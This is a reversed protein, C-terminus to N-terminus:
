VNISRSHLEKLIGDSAPLLAKKNVAANTLNVLQLMATEKIKKLSGLRNEYDRRSEGENESSFADADALIEFARRTQKEELAIQGAREIAVKLEMVYERLAGIEKGTLDRVTREIASRQELVSSLANATKGKVSELEPKTPGGSMRRFTEMQTEMQGVMQDASDYQEVFSALRNLVMLIEEM